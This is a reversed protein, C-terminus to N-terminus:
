PPTTAGTVYYNGNIVQGNTTTNSFNTWYTSLNAMPQATSSGGGTVSGDGYDTGIADMATCNTLATAPPTPPGCGNTNATPVNVTGTKTSANTNPLQTRIINGFVAVKSQFTLTSGSNTFPYFDGNAHVPGAFTMPSGPFISCDGDCFMGFQFVPILAVQAQRTMTVEQGGTTFDATVLMNVPIIQAYLGANPGSQVSG